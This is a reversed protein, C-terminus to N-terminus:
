LSDGSLLAWKASLDFHTNSPHPWNEKQALAQSEAYMKTDSISFTLIICEKHDCMCLHLKHVLRYSSCM